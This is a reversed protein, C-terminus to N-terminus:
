VIQGDEIFIENGKTNSVREIWIQFNNDKALQKIREMAAKGIASGDRILLIRIKPNEKLAGEDVQIRGEGHSAPAFFPGDYEKLYKLWVSDFGM